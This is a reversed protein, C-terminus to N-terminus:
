YFPRSGNGVEGRGALIELNGTNHPLPSGTLFPQRISRLYAHMGETHIMSESDTPLM